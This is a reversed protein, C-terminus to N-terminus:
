ANVAVGNAAAPRRRPRVGITKLHDRWAQVHADWYADFSGAFGRDNMRQRAADGMRTRLAADTLLDVARDIWRDPAGVPAVFGTEGDRVITAPGGQDSVIAPLGSAQAEMVVQGLTDTVSPFLFCDCSAYIQSLEEGHRFGLFHAGHRKLAETLRHRDPGDGVIVLEAEINREACRRRIEPWVRDLMPTNKEVSVRGCYLAKISWSKPVEGSRTTLRKWLGQDRNRPHFM